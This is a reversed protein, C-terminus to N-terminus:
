HFHYFFSSRLGINKRKYCANGCHPVVNAVSWEANLRQDDKIMKQQIPDIVSEVNNGSLKGFFWKLYYGKM